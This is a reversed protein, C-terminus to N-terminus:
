VAALKKAFISRLRTKQYFVRAMKECIIPFIASFQSLIYCRGRAFFRGWRGRGKEDTVPIKGDAIGDSEIDFKDFIRKWEDMPISSSANSTFTYTRSIARTLMSPDINHDINEALKM